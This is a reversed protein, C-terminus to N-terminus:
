KAKVEEQAPVMDVKVGSIVAAAGRRVRFAVRIQDTKEGTVTFEARLVSRNKRVPFNKRGAGAFKKEAYEYLAIELPGGSVEAEITIKCGRVADIGKATYVGVHGSPGEDSALHVFNVGQDPVVEAIGRRKSSTRWNRQFDKFGGDVDIEAAAAGMVALVACFWMRKM